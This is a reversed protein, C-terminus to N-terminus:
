PSTEMPVSVDTISSYGTSNLIASKIQIAQVTIHIENAAEIRGEIIADLSSNFFYRYYRSMCKQSYITYMRAWFLM